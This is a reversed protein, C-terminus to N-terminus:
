KSNQIVKVLNISRFLMGTGCENMEVASIRSPQMRNWACTLTPLIISSGLERIVEMSMNRGKLIRELLGIVLRSDEERESREKWARM